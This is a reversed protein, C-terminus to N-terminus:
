ALGPVDETFTELNGVTERVLAFPICVGILVMVIM